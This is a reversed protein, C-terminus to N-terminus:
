VGNGDEKEKKEKEVTTGNCRYHKVVTSLKSLAFALLAGKVVWGMEEPVPKGLFFDMGWAVLVVAAWMVLANEGKRFRRKEDKRTRWKDLENTFVFAGLFSLYVEVADRPFSITFPYAYQKLLLMAALAFGTALTLYFLVSPGHSLSKKLGDGLSQESDYIFTRAFWTKRFRLAFSIKKRKGNKM